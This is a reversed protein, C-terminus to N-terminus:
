PRHPSSEQFVSGYGWKVSFIVCPFEGAAAGGTFFVANGLGQEVGAHVEVRVLDIGRQEREVVREAFADDKGIFDTEAFGNFGRQHKALQPGFTFAPQDDDARGRQALM